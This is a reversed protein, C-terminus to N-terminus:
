GPDRVGDSLLWRETPRDKQAMLWQEARQALQEYELAVRLLKQRAAQDALLDAKARTADARKRWHKPDHLPNANM